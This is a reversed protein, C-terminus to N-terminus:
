SARIVVGGYHWQLKLRTCKLATWGQATMIKRLRPVQPTDPNDVFRCGLSIPRVHHFAIRQCEAVPRIGGIRRLSIEFYGAM